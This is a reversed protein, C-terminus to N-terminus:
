VLHRFQISSEEGNDKKEQEYNMYELAHKFGHEFATTYHYRAIHIQIDSINHADLLSQVYGWHDNILKVLFEQTQQKMMM